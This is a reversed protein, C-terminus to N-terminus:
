IDVAALLKFKLDWESGYKTTDINLYNKLYKTIEKKIVGTREPQVPGGTYGATDLIIILETVTITKPPNDSGLRVRKSNFNLRVVEPFKEMLTKEVIDVLQSETILYKM